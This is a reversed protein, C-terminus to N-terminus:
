NQVLELIWRVWSLITSARRSYTSDSNIKYLGAEKMIEVVEERTPEEAKHFYLLLVEAFVTHKLILEAFMLQKEKFKLELINKGETTLRCGIDDRNSDKILGLYRGANTYYDTQRPDFDYTTTIEDKTLPKDNLLECLNIIREFSDAQPFPIKPERIQTTTHSLELLEDITIEQKELSYLRKRLLTISNIENENEFKYEYLHFIGNTYIMFIPRISKNIKRKWLRYPYYLQRILFDTSISNKAEVLCLSDLSEFGGDIEIQSNSVDIDIKSDNLSCDVKFSFSDSSMRGTVTPLLEAGLFDELMGSAYACSIAAAESTIHNTNLSQLYQPLVVFNIPENEDFEIDKYIEMPAIVYDGRTVPLISLKNERFIEPLNAKHDFKTMLRAERFENIETASIRFNGESKIVSLINKKLFLKEWALDNKTKKLSM